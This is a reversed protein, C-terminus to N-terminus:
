MRPRCSPATTPMASPKARALPRGAKTLRCAAAPVPLPMPASVLAQYEWLGRTMVAPCCTREIIPTSAISAM